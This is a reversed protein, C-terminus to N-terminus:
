EVAVALNLVHFEHIAKSKQFKMISSIGLLHHLTHV